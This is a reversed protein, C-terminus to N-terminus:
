LHFAYGSFGAVDVRDCEIGLANLCTTASAVWTLWAPRYM